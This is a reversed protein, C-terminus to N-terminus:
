VIDLTQGPALTVYAKKYGSKVGYQGRRSRDRKLKPRVNVIRVGKVDVQPFAAKVAQAILIKNADSAVKFTYTNLESTARTAKETVVTKHIIQEANIM